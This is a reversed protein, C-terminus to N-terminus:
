KQGGCLLRRIRDDNNFINAKAASIQDLQSNIAQQLQELQEKLPQSAQVSLTEETQLQQQLSTQMNQWQSLERQMNDVDEQLSDLLKGLPHATRTLSQILSRMHDVEKLATERERKKGAEWEIETHFQVNEGNEQTSKGVELEKQTELIQAVLHGQQSSPRSLTPASPQYNDSIGDVPASEVVVLNEDEDDNSLKSSEDEVILNVPAPKALEESVVNVEGKNRVRPAGPRASGVRAATRPRALPVPAPAQTQAPSASPARNSTRMSHTPRSEAPEMAPPSQESSLSPLTPASTGSKLPSEVSDSGKKEVTSVAPQDELSPQQTKLEGQHKVASSRRQAKASAPRKHESEVPPADLKPTDQNSSSILEVKAKATTEEKVLDKLDMLKPESTVTEKKPKPPKTQDKVKTQKPVTSSRKKKEAAEEKSSTEKAPKSTSPSHKKKESAEDTKKSARDQSKSKSSDGKDEKEERPSSKKSDPADSKKTGKKRLQQSVDKSDLKKDLALGIAQLLENTKTPEHGAVIKTARVSLPIGTIIKVASILKDLFAIKGDRDKINEHNLEEESFLGDLFGTDRIVNTVIDHLFRFPPKKLLKETLPPKKIHKKLSDQTKKIIESKVDETM